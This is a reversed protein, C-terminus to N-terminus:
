MCCEVLSKERGKGVISLRYKDDFDLINSLMMLEQMGKNM